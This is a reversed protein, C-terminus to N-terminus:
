KECHDRVKIKVIIRNGLRDRLDGFPTGVIGEMPVAVNITSRPERKIYNIGDQLTGIKVIPVQKIDFTNAIATTDDYKLYVGNIMVDFLIFDEKESYLKGVSQIKGGYGEGFLIVDKDGFLQEFLEENENGSFLENLRGLLPKPITARDTRGAFEVKHGDWHVRINTGDIKETFMWPFDKLLEVTENRFDNEILRKKGTIERKFLTEIKNYEIM